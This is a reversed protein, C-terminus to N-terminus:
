AARAPPGRADFARITLLKSRDDPWVAYGIGSAYELPLQVDPVIGLPKGNGEVLPVYTGAKFRSAEAGAHRAIDRVVITSHKIPQSAALSSPGSVHGLDYQIHAAPPIVWALLLLSAFLRFVAGAGGLVGLTVGDHRQGRGNM